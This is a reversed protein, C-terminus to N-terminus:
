SSKAKGLADKFEDFSVEGDGDKDMLKVMPEALSEDEGLAKLVAGMEKACISGKKDLDCADFAEKMQQESAM